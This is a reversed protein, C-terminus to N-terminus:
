RKQSRTKYHCSDSVHAKNRVGSSGFGKNGRVTEKNQRVTRPIEDISVFGKNKKNPERNQRVTQPVEDIVEIKPHCIKEIVLQGIRDHVRVQFAKNGNNILLVGINGRFDEDIVGAGIDISHFYSLGSRPAIRGYTNKPLQVAIDTLILQRQHPKITLNEASFLDFGASKQYAKYPVKAKDSILRIKLVDSM